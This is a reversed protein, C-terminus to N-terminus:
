NALEVQGADTVAYTDDDRHEVLGAEVLNNLHSQVQDEQNFNIMTYPDEALEQALRATTNRPGRGAHEMDTIHGLVRRTTGTRDFKPEYNDDHLENVFGCPNSWSVVEGDDNFQIEANEPISWEDGTEPHVYVGGPVNVKKEEDNM